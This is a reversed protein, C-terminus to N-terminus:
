FIRLQLEMYVYKALLDLSCAVVALRLLGKTNDKQRVEADSSVWEMEEALDFLSVVVRDRLKRKEEEFDIMVVLASAVGLLTRESDLEGISSAASLTPKVISWTMSQNCHGATLVQKWLKITKSELEQQIHVKRQERAVGGIFQQSCQQHHTCLTTIMSIHWAYSAPQKVRTWICWMILTINQATRGRFDTKVTAAAQHTWTDWNRWHGCRFGARLSSSLAMSSAVAYAWAIRKAERITQSCTGISPSAPFRSDSALSTM